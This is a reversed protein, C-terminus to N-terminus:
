QTFTSYDLGDIVLELVDRLNLVRAMAAWNVKQDIQEGAQDGIIELGLFWGQM